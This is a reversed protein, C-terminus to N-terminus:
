PSLSLLARGSRGGPGRVRVARGSHGPKRTYPIGFLCHLTVVGGEPGGGPGGDPGRDPGDGSGGGGGPGGCRGAPM